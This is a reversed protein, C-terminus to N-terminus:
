AAPRCISLLEDFRRLYHDAKCSPEFNVAITQMGVAAAGALDDASGGVFAVDSSNLNLHSLVAQYGRSDPMTSKLDFSSEVCDFQVHIGLRDVTQKLQDTDLETDALVALRIGFGRLEALTKSVGPLPRATKSLERRRASSAAEVEDIQASSLGLDVLFARFGDAFSRVGRHVDTLYGTEWNKSFSQFDREIGLRSLLQWLWRHWLTSDYFVNAVEFVLAATSSKCGSSNPASHAPKKWNLRPERRLSSVPPAMDMLHKGEKTPL